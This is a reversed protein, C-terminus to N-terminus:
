STFNVNTNVGAEAESDRGRMTHIAHKENTIPREISKSMKLTHTIDDEHWVAKQCVRYFLLARPRKQKNWETELKHAKGRRSQCRFTVFNKCLHPHPDFSSIKNAFLYYCVSLKSPPNHLHTSTAVRCSLWLILAVDWNAEKRETYCSFL